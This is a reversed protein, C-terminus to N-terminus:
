VHARGIKYWENDGANHAVHPKTVAQRAQEIREPTPDEGLSRVTQIVDQRSATVQGRAAERQLGLTDVAEAFQGDREITAHSVGHENALRESTKPVEIQPGSRQRGHGGDQRKLRNYRRGRLLSMQDPTLNRRHLQHADIWDAASERDPLSLHRIQYDIGHRDCIVKRHHGDLLINEEAWVVLPDLCGDRLIGEELGALTQSDMPFIQRSFQEDVVIPGRAVGVM